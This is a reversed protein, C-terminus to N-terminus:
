LAALHDNFHRNIQGILASEVTTQVVAVYVPIQIKDVFEQCKVADKETMLLASINAAADSLLTQIDEFKFSHHDSFAHTILKASLLGATENKIILHQLQDFFRQPNGIGAVAHLTNYRSLLTEIEGITQDAMRNLAVVSSATVEMLTAAHNHAKLQQVLSASPKGNSVVADIDQLASLPERLPGHPLLKAIGFGRQADIVCIEFDRPLQYHQLGDDSLIIDPPNQKCLLDVCARRDPGVVVQVTSQHLTDASDSNLARYILLPEDGVESSNNDINVTHPFSIGSADGAGYGRSIVAIHLGQKILQQALHLLLPTKGTGGVTINGVVIIFPKFPRPEGIRM